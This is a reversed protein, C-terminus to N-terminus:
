WRVYEGTTFIRWEAARRNVLGRNIKGQSKNWAKWAAELTPYNGDGGSLMAFVSSNRFNHVGINYALLVLADFEHQKPRDGVAREFPRLDIEFLRDAMDETIGQSAWPWEAPTLLHGYGITAGRCWEAITEGTQDDYPQLRLEEISKLFERGTESMRM